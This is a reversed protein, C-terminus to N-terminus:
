VDRGLVVLRQHEDVRLDERALPFRPPLPPPPPHRPDAIFHLARRLDPQARLIAAALRELAIVVVDQRHTDLVLDVVEVALQEDVVQRIQLALANALFELLLAPLADRMRGRRARVARAARVSTARRRQRCAQIRAALGRPAARAVCHRRPESVAPGAWPGRGCVRRSGPSSRRVRRSPAARAAASERCGRPARPAQATAAAPAPPRRRRVSGAVRPERAAAGPT